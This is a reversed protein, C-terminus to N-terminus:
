SIKEAKPHHSSAAAVGTAPERLLRPVDIVGLGVLLTEAEARASASAEDDWGAFLILALAREFRADGSAVVAEQALAAAEAPRGEAARIRAQVCLLRSRAPGHVDAGHVDAGHEDGTHEDASAGLEALGARAAM